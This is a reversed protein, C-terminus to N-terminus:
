KWFISLNLEKQKTKQKNKESSHLWISIQYHKETAALFLPIKRSIETTFSDSSISEMLRIDNTWDILFHTEDIVDM